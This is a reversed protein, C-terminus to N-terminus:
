RKINTLDFSVIESNNDEYKAIAYIIRDDYSVTLRNIDIDTHLEYRDSGDWSAVRIITGHGYNNESFKRGSFIAYIYKDSTAIDSYGAQAEMTMATTVTEGMEVLIFGHPLFGQFGWIKEVNNGSIDFIDLMDASYTALAIKTGEKNLVISSGYLSTNEYDTLRPDVKDPYRGGQKLINGEYDILIIRSNANNSEVILCNNVMLLKSIIGTTDNETFFFTHVADPKVIESVNILKGYDYELFKKNFMGYVFLNKNIEELHGVTMVEEPGQGLTLFKNIPNGKLDYTEILPIGKLNAVVLVSDILLIDWPDWLMDEVILVSHNIPFVETSFTSNNKEKCSIFLFIAFLIPIHITYKINKM